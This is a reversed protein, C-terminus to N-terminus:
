AQRPRRDSGDEFRRRDRRPHIARSPRAFQRLRHPWVQECSRVDTERRRHRLACRTPPHFRRHRHCDGGYVVDSGGGGGVALRRRAERVVAENWLEGGQLTQLLAGDTLMGANFEAVTDILQQMRVAGGCTTLAVEVGDLVVAAIDPSYQGWGMLCYAHPQNRPDTDTLPRSPSLSGAAADTVLAAAAAASRSAASAAAASRLRGKVEVLAIVVWRDDAAGCVRPRARPVADATVTNDQGAGESALGGAVRVRLAYDPRGGFWALQPKFEFVLSSGFLEHLFARIPTFVELDLRKAVDAECTVERETEPRLRPLGRLVDAYAPCVGDRLAAVPLVIPHPLPFPQASQLDIAARVVNSLTTKGVLCYNVIPHFDPFATDATVAALHREAVAARRALVANQRALVANQLTSGPAACVRLSHPPVYRDDSM